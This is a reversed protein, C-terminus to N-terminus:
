RRSVIAGESRHANSDSSASPKLITVLQEQLSSAAQAATRGRTLVSHVATFYARSVQPYLKGAPVSPRLAAREHVELVRSVYPNAGLVDPNKYLAPLTPPEAIKRCRRAQEEPSALFRVLTAAERPHRSYRSVGYGNGGL